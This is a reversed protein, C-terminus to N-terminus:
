IMGQRWNRSPLLSTSDVDSQQLLYTTGMDPSRDLTTQRCTICSRYLPKPVYTDFSAGNYCRLVNNLGAFPFELWVSNNDLDGRLRPYCWVMSRMRFSQLASLLHQQAEELSSYARVSSPDSVTYPGICQLTVGTMMKFSPIIETQSEDCFLM